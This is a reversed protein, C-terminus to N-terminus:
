PWSVATPKMILLQARARKDTLVHSNLWVHLAERRFLSNRIFNVSGLRALPSGPIHRCRSGCQGWECRDSCGDTHVHTRTISHSKCGRWKGLGKHAHRSMSKVLSWMIELLPLLHWHGTLLVSARNLATHLSPCCVSVSQSTFANLSKTCYAARCTFFLKKLNM